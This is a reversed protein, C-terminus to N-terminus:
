NQLANLNLQGLVFSLRGGKFGACPLELENLIHDDEVADFLILSAVQEINLRYNSVARVGAIM